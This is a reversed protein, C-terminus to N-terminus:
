AGVNRGLGQRDCAQAASIFGIVPSCYAGYHPIGREVRHHSAGAVATIALEIGTIHDADIQRVGGSRKVALIYQRGICHSKCTQGQTAGIRSVIHQCSMGIIRGATNCSSAKANRTILNSGLSVVARGRHGGTGDRQASQGIQHAVFFQAVGRCTGVIVGVSTSMIDGKGVAQAVAGVTAQGTVVVQGIGNM